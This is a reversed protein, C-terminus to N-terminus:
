SKELGYVSLFSKIGSVKKTGYCHWITVGGDIVANYLIEYVAWIVEDQLEASDKQVRRKLKYIIPLEM